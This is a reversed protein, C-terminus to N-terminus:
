QSGFCGHCSPINLKRFHAGLSATVEAEQSGTEQPADEEKEVEVAHKRTEEM